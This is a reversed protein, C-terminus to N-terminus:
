KEISDNRIEDLASQLDTANAHFKNQNQERKVKSAVSLSGPYFLGSYHRLKVRDALRKMGRKM